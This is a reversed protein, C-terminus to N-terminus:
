SGSSSSFFVNAIGSFVSHHDFRMYVWTGGRHLLCGVEVQRGAILVDWGVLQWRAYQAVTGTAQVGSCRRLM